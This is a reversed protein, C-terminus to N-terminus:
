RLNFIKFLNNDVTKMNEESIKGIKGLFIKKDLTTIKSCTIKSDVKLNNVSNAVINVENQSIKDIRSSIFCVVFDGSDNNSLILAPRVKQGQLNTFPFPVIVIDGKAFPNKQETKFNSDSNIM